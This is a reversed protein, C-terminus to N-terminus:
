GAFLQINDVKRLVETIVARAVKENHEKLVEEITEGTWVFKDEWIFEPHEWTSEEQDSKKYGLATLTDKVTM